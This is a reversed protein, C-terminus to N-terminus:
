FQNSKQKVRTCVKLFFVSQPISSYHNCRYITIPNFSLGLIRPFALMEIKAIEDAKMYRSALERIHEALKTKPANNKRQSKHNPGFDAEHFSVVNFKNVSFFPSAKDAEDLRDLDILISFGAKRLHHAPHGHRTHIIESFVLACAENTDHIDSTM